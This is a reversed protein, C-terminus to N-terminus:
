VYHKKFSLYSQLIGDINKVGVPNASHINYSFDAPIIMGSNDIDYEILWKLFVMTTDDGGLDHDFSWYAPMGNNKVFEIADASSRIVVWEQGAPPNRLDDLYVHKEMADM